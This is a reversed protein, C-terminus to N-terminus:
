QRQFFPLRVKVGVQILWPKEDIVGEPIGIADGKFSAKNLDGYIAVMHSVWAEFGGGFIWSWAEVRLETTQTVAPSTFSAGDATTVTV